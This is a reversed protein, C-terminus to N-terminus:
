NHAIDSIPDALDNYFVEIHIGFLDNFLGAENVIQACVGQILDLQNHSELFFERNLNRVVGGLRDLGETIGDGEQGLGGALLQPQAQGHFQTSDDYGSEPKDRREATTNLGCPGVDKGALTAGLTNVVKLDVIDGALNGVAKRKPVI